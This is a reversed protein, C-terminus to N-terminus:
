SAVIIFEQTSVKAKYVFASIATALEVIFILM